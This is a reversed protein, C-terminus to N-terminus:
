VATLREGLRALKGYDNRASPSRRPFKPLDFGHEALRKRMNLSRAYVAPASIGLKEAITITSGGNAIEEMWVRLFTEADTQKRPM